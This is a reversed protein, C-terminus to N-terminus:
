CSFFNNNKLKHQTLKALFWDGSKFNLLNNKLFTCPIYENLCPYDPIIFFRKNLIQLRGIFTSLFPEILREPIVIERNKSFGIKAIIKDGHLVKKIKKPPIFYSVKSDIELFGFGKESKKVIGEVRPANITLKKKLKMLINNNRFM